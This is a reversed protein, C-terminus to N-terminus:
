LNAAHDFGGEQSFQIILHAVSELLSQFSQIDTNEFGNIEQWRYEPLFCVASQFGGDIPKEIYVKVSGDDLMHSHVIETQDNLQLFPYMLM